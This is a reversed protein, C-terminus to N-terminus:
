KSVLGGVWGGIFNKLSRFVRNSSTKDRDQGQRLVTKDTKDSDSQRIRKIEKDQGQRIRKNEKEQGQRTGM